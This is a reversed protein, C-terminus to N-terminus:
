SESQNNIYKNVFVAMDFDSQNDIDFAELPPVEFMFPNIGIRKKGAIYFSERSFIYFNSNEEYVPALDQTRILKEPNHNIAKGDGWYLRTQIKNVSFVSDYNDMNNFFFEIASDITKVRLLPNTSHTQLYYEDNIVSIDHNIIKNMSVTDGCLETPRNIIIVEPFFKNADDIILDSDTNIYVNKLYKSRILENLISHYLPKGRFHKMNKNPIRESHGKMPLLFNVSM